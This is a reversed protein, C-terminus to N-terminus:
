HAPIAAGNAALLKELGANHPQGAALAKLYHWRALEARPPQESIYIVALNNHADANGPELVLAQRLATEAAQRLGLHGLTIGLWNQIDANNPDIKAARGLTDLAADYNQQELRLHGLVSQNYADDPSLAVAALIHKEANALHGQSLEIAALNALALGNNEDHQLIQQYGGAAQSYEHASFHEDASAMLATPAVQVRQTAADVPKPVPAPQRFLALEETTYPVREAEVVALRAQLTQLQESLHAVLANTAARSENGGWLQRAAMLQVRLMDREQELVHLRVADEALAANVSNVPSVPPTSVTPMTSAIPVAPKAASHPAADELVQLRAELAAKEADSQRAAAQLVGIQSQSTEAGAKAEALQKKLLDNEDRLAQLGDRSEGLTKAQAQLAVNEVALQSAQARAQSLQKGLDAVSQRAQALANSEMLLSAAASGRPQNLTVRLLDNEKMLSRVQEQATALERPDVAAPQAALAERLKAELTANGAELNQVQAQLDTIQATLKPDPVPVAPPVPAPNAALASPNGAPLPPAAPVSSALGAIKDALYQERYTIINPGWDPYVGAFKQLAVLAAQYETLAPQPQGAGALADAREMMSFIGVYQEDPGSQARAAALGLALVLITLRLCHKM